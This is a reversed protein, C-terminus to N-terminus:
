RGLLEAMRRQAEADAICLAQATADVLRSPDGEVRMAEKALRVAFPSAAGLDDLLTTLAADLDGDDALRQVLGIRHAEVGDIRRGTLVLDTALGGGILRALRHLAGGSPIIGLRVEPLGWRATPTSIRFDCAIALECGGGLAWGDVVAITPAPHEHIRRFLTTNIRGLSDSVTRERLSAVDTGAVFMGPTASRIILPTEVSVLDDLATSFAQSTAIDLANRKDARTLSITTAREGRTVVIPSTLNSSTDNPSTM